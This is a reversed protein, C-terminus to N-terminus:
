YGPPAAAPQSRSGGRDALDPPAVILERYPGHPLEPVRRGAAAFDRLREVSDFVRQVLRAAARADDAAIYAAVDDLDDLAPAAWVIRARGAM